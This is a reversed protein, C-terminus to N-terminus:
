LKGNKIINQNYRLIRGSTGFNLNLINPISQSYNALMAIADLGYLEAADLM